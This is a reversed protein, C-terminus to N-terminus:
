KIEKSNELIESESLNNYDENTILPIKWKYCLYRNKNPSQSKLKDIFNDCSLEDEFVINKLQTVLGEIQITVLYVQKMNQM